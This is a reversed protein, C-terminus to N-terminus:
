EAGCVYRTSARDSVYMSYHFALTDTRNLAAPPDQATYHLHLTNTHVNRKGCSTHKPGHCSRHLPATPNTCSCIFQYSPPLPTHTTTSKHYHHRASTQEGQRRGTERGMSFDYRPPFCAVGCGTARQPFSIAMKNAVQHRALAAPSSSISPPATRNRRTKQRYMYMAGPGSTIQTNIPQQSSFDSALFGHRYHLLLPRHCPKQQTCTEKPEKAAPRLPYTQRSSARHYSRGLPVAM